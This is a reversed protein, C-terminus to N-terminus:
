EAKGFVILIDNEKLQEDHPPPSLYEEGRKIALIMIAEQAHIQTVTKGIWTPYAHLTNETFHLQRNEGDLHSYWWYALEPNIIHNAMQYGSMGAPFRVFDAGSLYMKRIYHSEEVRAMIRLSSNEFRNALAKAGVVVSLNDRDDPMVSIVARARAIGAQVLVTDDTPDNLLYAAGMEDALDALSRDEYESLDVNSIDTLSRVKLKFYEPHIFLLAQKLNSEDTDIMIFPTHASNFERIIRTGLTDVGCVIMHQNLDEIRNMRRKRLRQEIRSAQNDIIYAAFTSLAYGSIGIAGLSFFIAFVRGLTTQPAFDGYGITTITIITAYLADLWFWGEIVSYAVTGIVVMSAISWLVVGFNLRLRLERIRQFIAILLSM